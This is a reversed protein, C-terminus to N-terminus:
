MDKVIRFGLWSYIDYPYYNGRYSVRARNEPHFYCEGRCVKVHTENPQPDYGPPDVSPSDSYYEGDFWDNCWEWVNGSMDYLGLENPAKLGVRYAYAKSKSNEYVWAVENWNNSGSYKTNKAKIGGRAAFEWEAETPLRGGAWKAFADAGYWSVSVIPTYGFGDLPVFKGGEYKIMAGFDAEYYVYIKGDVIGSPPCNIANLFECYQKTTIEFKSMLFGSVTVKHAPLEREECDNEQEFTCGMTFTGGEVTVFELTDPPDVHSGPDFDGNKKCGYFIGLVIFSIILVPKIFQTKM